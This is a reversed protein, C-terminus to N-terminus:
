HLAVGDALYDPDTTWEWEYEHEPEYVSNRIMTDWRWWNAGGPRRSPGRRWAVRAARAAPSMDEEATPPELATGFVAPVAFAVEAETDPRVPVADPVAAGTTM